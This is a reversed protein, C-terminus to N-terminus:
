EYEVVIRSLAIRRVSWIPPNTQGANSMTYLAIFLVYFFRLRPGHVFSHGRVEFDLFVQLWSLCKFGM